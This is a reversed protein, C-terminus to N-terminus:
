GNEARKLKPKFAMELYEKRKKEFALEGEGTVVFFRKRPRGRGKIESAEEWEADVMKWEILQNLNKFVTSSIMPSKYEDEALTVITSANAKGDNTLISGLIVFQTKNLEKEESTM